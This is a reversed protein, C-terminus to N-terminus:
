IVVMEWVEFCSQRGERADAIGSFSLFTHKLFGNGGVQDWCDAPNTDRSVLPVTTHLVPPRPDSAVRQPPPPPPPSAGLHLLHCFWWKGHVSGLCPQVQATTAPSSCNGPLIPQTFPFWVMRLFPVDYPSSSLAKRRAKGPEQLQVFLPFDGGCFACCKPVPLALGSATTNTCPTIWRGKASCCTPM